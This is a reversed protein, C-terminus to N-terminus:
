RMFGKPDIMKPKMGFRKAIAVAKKNAHDTYRKVTVMAEDYGVLGAASASRALLAQEM